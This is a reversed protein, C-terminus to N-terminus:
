INKIKSIEVLIEIKFVFMDTSSNKDHISFQNWVNLLTKNKYKENSRKM